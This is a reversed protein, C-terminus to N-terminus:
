LVQHRSENNFTEESRVENQLDPSEGGENTQDFSPLDMVENEEVVSSHIGTKLLHDVHVFDSKLM